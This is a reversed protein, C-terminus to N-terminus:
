RLENLVQIILSEDVDEVICPETIGRLLVFRSVGNKWKKDTHMAAYLAESDWVM